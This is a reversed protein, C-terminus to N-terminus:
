VAGGTGGYYNVTVQNTSNNMWVLDQYGDGNFDGLGSKCKYTYDAAPQFSGNVEAALQMYIIGGVTDACPISGVTQSTGATTGSFVNTGGSTTGVILQYETAGSVATWSFDALSDSLTIGPLPSAILPASAFALKALFADIGGM